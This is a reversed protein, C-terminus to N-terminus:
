VDYNECQELYYKKEWKWRKVVNVTCDVAKDVHM